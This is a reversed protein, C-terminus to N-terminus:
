VVRLSNYYEPMLHAYVLKADKQHQLKPYTM